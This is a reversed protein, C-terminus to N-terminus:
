LMSVPDRDIVIAPERRRRALGRAATRVIRGLDRSPGRLVAHWRWREKIRAVPCPAPGLVVVPLENRDIV